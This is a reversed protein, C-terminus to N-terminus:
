TICLDINPKQNSAPNVLEPVDQLFKGCESGAVHKESFHGLYEMLTQFQGQEFNKSITHKVEQPKSAKRQMLPLLKDESLLKSGIRKFIEGVVKIKDIM